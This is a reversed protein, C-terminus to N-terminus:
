YMEFLVTQNHLDEFTVKHAHNSALHSLISNHMCAHAGRCAASMFLGQFGFLGRLEHETRNAESFGPHRKLGLEKQRTKM